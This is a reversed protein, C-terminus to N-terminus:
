GILTGDVCTVCQGALHISGDPQISIRIRGDRGVKSGQSARYGGGYAGLAGTERLFVAVSANGSGCVPDEAVGHTPTFARVEIAPDSGAPYPGFAIVGAAGFARDFPAMRVLDPRLQLVTAADALRAVTWRIGMDVLRPEATRDLPAGLIAELEAIERADLTRVRSAPVEFSVLRENREGTVAIPVLGFACEQVLTGERPTVIGAEIAAHASGLTPHGAFPVEERPTFIRLRYDAEPRTPRLLFTTESLNTWNAIRQMQAGDLEDAGLVVAVPNGAFPRDTFVDVWKCRFSM